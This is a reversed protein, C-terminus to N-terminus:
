ANMIYGIKARSMFTAYTYELFLKADVTIDSIIRCPNAFLASGDDNAYVSCSPLLLDGAPSM